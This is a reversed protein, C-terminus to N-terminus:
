GAIKPPKGTNKRRHDALTREYYAYSSESRNKALGSNRQLEGDPSAFSTLKINAPVFKPDKKLINKLEEVQAKNTIKLKKIGFALDFKAKDQPFYIEVSKGSMEAAYTDGAVKPAINTRVLYSTTITGQAIEKVVGELENLSKYDEKVKVSFGSM